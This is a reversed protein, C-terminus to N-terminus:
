LLDAIKIPKRVANNHGEKYQYWIRNSPSPGGKVSITPTSVIRGFFDKTVAPKITKAVKVANAQLRQLHNPKQKISEKDIKSAETRRMKELEIERAILQKNSYSLQRKKCSFQFLEEVDPELNFVYVGDQRREQVYNLNYDIMVNVVRTMADKEEKTYLHLNVPRFNPSIIKLLFPLIDLLLSSKNCYTKITPRMGKLMEAVIASRRVQNQKMEFGASPLNLKQAQTTAFLFHWVIFGYPLYSSLSYNQTTHIQHSILDNFVFWDMAKSLGELTSDRLKLSIFNEHVGQAVREYDGFSSITQFIKTTRNAENQKKSADKEQYLPNFKPRLIQFIDQWVAFLGKQMDKQGFSGRLVDSLTVAKKESKFFHMMSLCSRIDNNTKEALAMMTSLDTKLGERRCISTLREALKASSTRPFHLVLSIQRLSRLAPAYVDNCICIIPRRLIFQKSKGGKKPKNKIGNVFKILYEISAKPAGDIEDFILCNPRNETDVLSKMQTANELSTKFAETSRDDSANIEVINYGAHKAAVHALTTKGLGPPGCLLAVKYFPRDHEDLDTNLEFPRFKSTNKDYQKLTPKIKPRRNFVVKDWLKLWKLMTRNTSEDSLLEIYRKPRYLDLWLDRDSGFDQPESLEMESSETSLKNLLTQAENWIRQKESGLVDHGVKSEKVVSLVEEREYEESHFRVYLDEGDSRRVTIYPYKPVRRSINRSDRDANRARSSISTNISLVNAKEKNLKRLLLIHEMLEKLEDEKSPKLKTKKAEPEFQAFDLDSIDGFLEEVNRKNSTSQTQPTSENQLPPEKPAIEEPTANYQPDEQLLELEDAYMLEFEEDPNPYDSM